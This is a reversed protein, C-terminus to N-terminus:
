QLFMTNEEALIGRFMFVEIYSKDYNPVWMEQWNNNDLDSFALAGVTGGENKIVTREYEFNDASGTPYAMSVSHDGDGAIMIHARESGENTKNPWIAYPFGPSMNPVTLSWANKFGTTIPYKDYSGTILDEPVTYAWIGNEKSDTEHNNVVLEKRGDGNLDILQASYAHLTTDDIIRSEVLSGDTLSVRYVGLKEDFFQAAFVVVEGPYQELFDAEIGVDPGTAIVHENWHDQSDLGDAPHEYWVLKGEGAKTNCKATLFDKRGDGNLDMWFGMHYFYGKRNHTMTVTKVTKTVDSGDIVTLYIGGNGKGPPIFGDPVVIVRQDFVDQPVTKAFNPWKFSPTALEVPELKSLDQSGIAEKINPVVHLKGSSFM